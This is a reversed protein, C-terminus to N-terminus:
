LSLLARLCYCCFVTGSDGHCTGEGTPHFACLEDDLGFPLTSDNPRGLVSAVERQCEEKPVYLLEDSFQLIDPAPDSSAHELDGWGAATLPQGAELPVSPDENVKVLPQISMGDLKIVWLDNRFATQATFDDVFAHPHLASDIIGFM